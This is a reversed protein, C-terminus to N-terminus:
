AARGRLWCLAAAAIRAMVDRREEVARLRVLSRLDVLASGRLSPAISLGGDHGRASPTAAGNRFLSWGDGWRRQVRSAWRSPAIVPGPTVSGRIVGGRQAGSPGSPTAERRNGLMAALTSTLSFASGASSSRGRWFLPLARIFAAQPLEPGGELNRRSPRGVAPPSSEAPESTLDLPVVFARARRAPETM